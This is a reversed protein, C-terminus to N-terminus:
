PLDYDIKNKSRQCLQIHFIGEMVFAFSIELSDAMNTASQERKKKKTRTCGLVNWWSQPSLKREIKDETRTIFKIWITIFLDMSARIFQFVDKLPVIDWKCAWCIFLNFELPM